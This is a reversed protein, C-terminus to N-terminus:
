MSERINPDNRFLLAGIGLIIWFIVLWIVISVIWGTGFFWRAILIGTLPFTLPFTLCGYVTKM